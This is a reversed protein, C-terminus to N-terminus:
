ANSVKIPARQLEGKASGYRPDLRREVQRLLAAFFFSLLLYVLAAM